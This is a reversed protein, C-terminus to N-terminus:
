IIKKRIMFSKKVKIRKNAGFANAEDSTLQTEQSTADIAKYSATLRRFTECMSKVFRTEKILLVFTIEATGLNFKEVVVAIKGTHCDTRGRM